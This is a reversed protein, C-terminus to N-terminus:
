RTAQFHMADRGWFAGAALWGEKAFCEMVTLPMMAKTPWHTFLGNREADLDIAIAWSHMSWSSSGGRIKRPNYLGDYVLIGSAVRDVRDTYRNNLREFVRALSAAVKEHARLTQIPQGEYFVTFPLNITAMPPTYGGPAGHPGYFLPVNEQVPFPHPNPMMASLHIKCAAISRPGWFGDPEVGIREQIAKIENAKM